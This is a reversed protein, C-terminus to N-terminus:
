KNKPMPYILIFLDVVKEKENFEFNNDNNKIFKSCHLTKLIPYQIPFTISECNM